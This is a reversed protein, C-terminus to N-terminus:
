APKGMEQALKVLARAVAMRAADPSSKGLAVAVEAYSLGLEVRAVVAQRDEDRLRALASEYREVAQTGIAAELPSASRDQHQDAELEAPAPRRQARRMEDRIRNVVAQRLYAHLAGDHRMEFVKLRRFAHVMTEQVLDETELLDRAYQPLRGRAWRRLPPLYRSFLLNVAEADGAQARELLEVTADLAPAEPEDDHQAPSRRSPDTM